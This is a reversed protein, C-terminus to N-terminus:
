QLYFTLICMIPAVVSLLAATQMISKVPVFQMFSLMNVRLMEVVLRVVRLLVVSLKIPKILVILMLSLVTVNQM